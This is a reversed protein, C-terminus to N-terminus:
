PRRGEADVSRLALVHLPRSGSPRLTPDLLREHHRMLPAQLDATFEESEEPTVEAVSDM